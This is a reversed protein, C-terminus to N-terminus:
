LPIGPRYGERHALEGQTSQSLADGPLKGRLPDVDGVDDDVARDPVGTPVLRGICGVGPEIRVRDGARVKMHELLVATGPRPLDLQPGPDLPESRATLGQM